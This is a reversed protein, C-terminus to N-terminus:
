RFPHALMLSRAVNLNLPRFEKAWNMAHITM